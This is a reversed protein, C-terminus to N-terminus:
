CLYVVNQLNLLNEDFGSGCRAVHTIIGSWGIKCYDSSSSDYGSTYEDSSSSDDSSNAQQNQYNQKLRAWYDLFDPRLEKSTAISYHSHIHFDGIFKM